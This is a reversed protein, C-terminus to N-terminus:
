AVKGVRRLTVGREGDQAPEETYTKDLVRKPRPIAGFHKTILNLAKEEDFRGAVALVINDPQYYKRYFAQLRDIPVREIDARNGITSKGYNHWEFAIAWMRQGLITRPNNENAEFESRVVSFEKLLDERKVYSNLLRDAELKIGFELNGDTARMTEYYNTRDVWTTGNFNAGRDNLVRPVN